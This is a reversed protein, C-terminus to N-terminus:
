EHLHHQELRDWILRDLEDRISACRVREIIEGAFGHMLMRRATAESL